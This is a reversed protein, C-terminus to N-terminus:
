REVIIIKHGRISQFTKEFRTSDRIWQATIPCIWRLAELIEIYDAELDRNLICEHQAVRNRLFRIRDFTQHARKHGLAKGPFARHLCPIWLPAAYCNMLLAVWFGFTLESVVRGSSIQKRQAKIKGRVEALRQQEPVNLQIVEYWDDRNFYTCLCSHMSNRLAVELGQLVAYLAESLATNEQYLLIAKDPDNGCQSEYTSIRENSLTKYLAANRTTAM